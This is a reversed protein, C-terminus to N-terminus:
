KDPLLVGINDCLVEFFHFPSTRGNIFLCDAYLLGVLVLAFRPALYVRVMDIISLRCEDSVGFTRRIFYFSVTFLNM